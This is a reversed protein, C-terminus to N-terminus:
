HHPDDAEDVAPARQEDFWTAFPLRGEGRALAEGRERFYTVPPLMPDLPLPRCVLEIAWPATSPPREEIVEFRAMRLMAVLASRTIGWFCNGYGYM